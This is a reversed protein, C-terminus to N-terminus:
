FALCISLDFAAVFAMGSALAAAVRSVRSVLVGVAASAVGGISVFPIFVATLMLAAQPGRIMAGPSSVADVLLLSGALFGLAVVIHLGGLLLALRWPRRERGDRGDTLKLPILSLLALTAVSLLIFDVQLFLDM